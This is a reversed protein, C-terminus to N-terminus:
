LSGISDAMTVSVWVHMMLCARVIVGPLLFVFSTVRLTEDSSRYVSKEFQPKM